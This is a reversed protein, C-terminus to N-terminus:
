AEEKARYQLAEAVHATAISEDGALDAITRAVKIVRYYGRASLSMRGVAQSLFAQVDASLPCLERVMKNSMEASSSIAFEGLRKEQIHRARQM